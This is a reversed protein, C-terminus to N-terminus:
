GPPTAVAIALLALTGAPADGESTLFRSASVSFSRRMGAAFAPSIMM